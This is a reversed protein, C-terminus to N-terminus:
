AIHNKMGRVDIKKLKIEKGRKYDSLFFFVYGKIEVPL